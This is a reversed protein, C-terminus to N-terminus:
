KSIYFKNNDMSINLGLEEVAFRWTMPFYTVDNFVLVPFEEQNNDIIKSNVRITFDPLKAYLNKASIIAAENYFKAAPQDSKNISFGEKSDWEVDLGLAQTFRWTMPFYTVGEHMLVPYKSTANDMNVNNIMIKFAPYKVEYTKKPKTDDSQKSSEDSSDAYTVSPL